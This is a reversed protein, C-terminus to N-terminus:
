PTASPTSSYVLLEFEAPPSKPKAPAGSPRVRFWDKGIEPDVPRRYCRDIEKVSTGCDTACAAKDKNFGIRHSIYSHKFCNNPLHLGHKKCLKRINLMAGAKCVYGSRSPCLQLWELAAIPMPVLRDEPTGVKAVTVNLHRRELNIDEWTQRPMDARPKGKKAWKGHVEDSRMGMLASLVAAGLYHPHKAHLFELASRLTAPSIIGIKSGKEKARDTREIELKKDDPFYGQQQLWRFLTRARKRHDNSTVGDAFTWLWKKLQALAITDVHVNGVHTLLSNLKSNYTRYGEGGGREKADIFDKIADKLLIRPLEVRKRGAAWSTCAEVISGGAITRAKAWEEMAAVPPVGQGRAIARLAALEQMDAGTAHETEVIGRSLQKAKLLAEDEAKALDAFARRNPRGGEPKPWAMSYVWGDAATASPQRYIKVVAAGYKVELPFKRAKM